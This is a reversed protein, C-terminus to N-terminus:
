RHFLTTENKNFFLFPDGYDSNRLSSKPMYLFKKEMTHKKGSVAMQQYMMSINDAALKIYMVNSNKGKNTLLSNQTYMFM